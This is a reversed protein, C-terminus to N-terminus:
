ERQDAIARLREIGTLPPDTLLDYLARLEFRDGQRHRNHAALVHMAAQDPQRLGCVAIAEIEAKRFPSWETVYGQVRSFRERAGLADRQHWLIAAGWCRAEGANEGALRDVTDFEGLAEDLDGLLVLCIGRYFRGAASGPDVAIAQDCVALAETHQDLQLLAIGRNIHATTHGPDVAVARDYAALADEARGLELLASGRNNHAAASGPDVAVARDCAALAEDTEGLYLLAAGRSVHAGVYGPDLAIAQDCAALADGPRGLDLLADGRNVHAGAIGPAIAVARDCAALAEEPRRLDILANGRNNHAAASGPDLALARDYAALADKPRGLHQLADGRSVHSSANGPNLAIAQDCAALADEPRGLDLLANGRNVHAVANGPDVALARDCAALADRPRGLDLLASGRNVHASARGPELAVAEDCAALADEPRGLDILANGRNSHAAANSPDLAIVQDHAALADALQNARHLAAAYSGWSRVSRPLMETALRAAALGPPATPVSTDAPGDWILQYAIGLAQAGIAQRLRTSTTGDAAAQLSAVAGMKDKDDAQWGARLILVAAEWDGPRGILPEEGAHVPPERDLGAPTIGAERRAETRWGPLADGDPSNAVRYTLLDLDRQQDSNCTQEFQTTLAAAADATDPDAAALVPLISALLDLGDQNDAWWAHWLVALLATTFETHDLQEDLTHWRDRMRALRGNLLALARDNIERIRRRQYPDLLDTRLTDRVDDHLQRSAPLVFDHRRALDKFDALPDDTAWLAALLDPDDRLDSYVLALSLIKTLDDRPPESAPHAQPEELREAHVLYRRALASIVAGPHGDDIGGCIDAVPQGEDLLTAAVSVALPMGRTFQALMDIEQDTFTNAARRTHLYARIMADGFRGPSMLVLHEDGIDRVFQAVPSDFRPEAETEFRAGVVWAVRGGTRTMVHRLWGWARHGIVEGTDLFVLMPREDATACIGDAVRRTLELAPDTVLDYERPLIEGPKRGTIAQFAATSLHGGAQAAAALQGPSLGALGGPHGVALLGASAAANLLAGADEATFSSGPRGSQAVVDAFRAAYDPMRAAGRRYDAFARGASDADYAAAVANQLADLVTLLAPGAAGGYRGPDDRAQDEWDLWVTRLQGAAIDSGVVRGEAMARFQQLLRSKGSGGLGHVLVVRSRSPVVEESRRPLGRWRGGGPKGTATLERLVQAFRAQEDRRGIFLEDAM